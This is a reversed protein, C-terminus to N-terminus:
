GLVQMTLKMEADWSGRREEGGGGVGGRVGLAERWGAAGGRRRSGSM